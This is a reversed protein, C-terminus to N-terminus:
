SSETMLFYEFGVKALALQGTYSFEIQRSEESIAGRVGDVASEARRDTWETAGGDVALTRKYLTIITKLQVMIGDEDTVGDIWWEGSEPCGGVWSCNGLSDLTATVSHGNVSAAQWGRCEQVDVCDDDLTIIAM